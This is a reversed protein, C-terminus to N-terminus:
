PLTFSPNVAKVKEVESREEAALNKLASRLAAAKRVSGDYVLFTYIVKGDKEDIGSNPKYMMRKIYRQWQGPLVFDSNVPRALTHCSSCKKAFVKYAAKQGEPYKSVDITKPGADLKSLHAKLELSPAGGAFASGALITLAIALATSLAGVVKKHACTM